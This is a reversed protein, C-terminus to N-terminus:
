PMRTGETRLTIVSDAATTKYHAIVTGTLNGDRLRFVGHTSVQVGKRLVSEYPGADVVISDGSAMVQPAIPKRNPLMIRWGSPDATATLAYTVLVTDKTEAMNRM